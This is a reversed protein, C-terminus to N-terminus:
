KKLIAGVRIKLRRYIKKVRDRMSDDEQLYNKKIYAKMEASKIKIVKYIETSKLRDIGRMLWKYSVEFWGFAMLKPKTVRFLWFTFAAIPIKGSYVVAWLFVEGKFLLAGAYVGQLEVAIFLTVFVFLIVEGNVDQLYAELRKLVNLSQIYRVIPQAFRVWVLEEYFIYALVALILLYHTITNLFKDM